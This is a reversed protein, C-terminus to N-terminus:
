EREIYPIIIYRILAAMLMVVTFTLIVVEM